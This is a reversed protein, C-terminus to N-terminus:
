TCFLPMEQTVTVPKTNAGTPLIGTAEDTPIIEFPM